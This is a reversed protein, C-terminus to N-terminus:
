HLQVDRDQSTCCSELSLQKLFFREYLVSVIFRPSGFGNNTSIVMCLVAAALEHILM